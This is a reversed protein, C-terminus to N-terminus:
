FFFSLHAEKAQMICCVIKLALLLFTFLVINAELIYHLPLIFNCFIKEFKYKLM